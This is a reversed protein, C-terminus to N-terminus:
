AAIRFSAQRGSPDRMAWEIRRIDGFHRMAGRVLGFAIHAFPRHSRYDVILDTGEAHTDVRPPVAGPNLARVEEHIHDNVHLLLDEAATYRGLIEPYLVQFREFLWSGFDESLVAADIGTLESAATVMQVAEEWPYRSVRTYAGGHPLASKELVQESFAIGGVHELFGVMEVFVIGRM